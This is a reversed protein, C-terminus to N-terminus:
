RVNLADRLGNGLLNFALVLLMIAFGPALALMPNQTIIFNYNEKIMLGWSPQPPQVGIGLFSLGAEIVIAAAFNSAAIVLVPGMINPWIHKVITRIGSYGLARTAEIYELERVALVQGRVLRAVNVWMSLGIAIFVQWFGKGLALTIAFVLLLTPISWIVNIFWMIVDDTRGRYYGALSGLLLGISLSIIVTILGVSLSVRTGIIIRGLIDRGYKDTGLLYKQRVVPTSATRSLPYVIPESVGEDIYKDAYISDGKIQYQNVPIYYYRDEKGGILQKLFGPTQVTKEKKLLLFQQSFGPRNGGTELIIRNANPSPDPSLFYAFVAVLLSIIIIVLGFMAGKNKKLRKWAAHSYSQNNTM